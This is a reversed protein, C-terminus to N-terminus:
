GGLVKAGNRACAEGGDEAGGGDAGGVREGVAKSIQRYHHGNISLTIATDLYRPRRMAWLMVKWYHRRGPSLIGLHWVSRWLARMEAWRLQLRRRRPVRYNRFFTLIRECYNEESYIAAVVRHYGALLRGAGMKPSFNITGDM